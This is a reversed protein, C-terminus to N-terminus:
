LLLIEQTTRPYVLHTANPIKLLTKISKEIPKHLYTTTLYECLENSMDLLENTAMHVYKYEKNNEDRYKTPPAFVCKLDNQFDVFKTSTSKIAEYYKFYCHCGKKNKVFHNM